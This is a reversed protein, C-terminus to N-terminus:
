ASAELSYRCHISATTFVNNVLNITIVVIEGHIAQKRLGSLPSITIVTVRHALLIVNRALRKIVKDGQQKLTSPVTQNYSYAFTIATIILIRQVLNSM